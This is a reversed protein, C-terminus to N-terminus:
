VPVVSVRAHAPDAAILTRIDAPDSTLIVAPLAQMAHAAVLADVADSM